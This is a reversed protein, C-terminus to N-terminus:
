EVLAAAASGVPKTAYSSCNVALSSNGSFTITDAIVQTCGDTASAGGAFSLAGKPLYVAGGFTQSGGGALKFATGLPMNRDGFIVIGATNGSTPASINVVANSGISATAFNKGTSSTFVLTVGTGTLTANGAISLSGQNLYYIGPNLNVVVGATLSMGGCYVGPNITINSKANFNTQNCGSYVPFSAAAYPDVAPPIGTKIGETTTIGSTGSIGGVTGVSQASVAASGSVVLASGSDSNDYLNCSSLAVQASGQVTVAGSAVSDLALVCGSGGTYVAVSRASETFQKVGLVASFLPKQPRSIIVEVAGSTGAHAGSTPPQNVTVVVGNVDNIFGYTAAIGEAELTLNSGATAASVAASDAAAQLSQHGYVWLGYDTGFGVAGILLPLALAAAVLFNGSEDGRFKKLSGVKLLGLRPLGLRPLGLRPLGVKLLGPKLLGRGIGPASLPASLIRLANLMNRDAPSSHCLMLAAQSDKPNLRDDFPATTRVFNRKSTLM